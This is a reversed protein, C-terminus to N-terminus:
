RTSSINSTEVRTCTDHVCEEVFANADNINERAEFAAPTRYADCVTNSNREEKRRRRTSTRVIKQKKKEKRKKGLEQDVPFSWSQPDVPPDPVRVVCTPLHKTSRIERTYVLSSEFWAKYGFSFSLYPM